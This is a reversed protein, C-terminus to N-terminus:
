LTAYHKAVQLLPEDPDDKALLTAFNLYEERAEDIPKGLMATLMDPPGAFLNYWETCSVGWARSEDTILFRFLGCIRNFEDFETETISMRYCSPMPDLPETAVALCEVFGAKRLVPVIKQIDQESFRMGSEVPVVKWGKRLIWDPDFQIADVMMGAVLSHYKEIEVQETIANM